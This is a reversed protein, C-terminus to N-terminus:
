HRAARGVNLISSTDDYSAQYVGIRWMAALNIVIIDDIVLNEVLAIEIARSSSMIASGISTLTLSIM